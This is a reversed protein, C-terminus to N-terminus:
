GHHELRQERPDLGGTLAPPEEAQAEKARRQIVELDREESALATRAAIDSAVEELVISRTIPEM